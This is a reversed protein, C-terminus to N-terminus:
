RGVMGSPPLLSRRGWVRRVRGARAQDRVSSAVHNLEIEFVDFQEASVVVPRGSQRCILPPSTPRELAADLHTDLQGPEVSSEEVLRDDQWRLVVSHGSAWESGVRGRRASINCTVPDVSACIGRTTFRPM